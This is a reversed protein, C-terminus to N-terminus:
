LDSVSVNVYNCGHNEMMNLLKAKTLLGLQGDTGQSLYYPANDPVLLMKAMYYSTAKLFCLLLKKESV